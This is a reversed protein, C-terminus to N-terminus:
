VGRGSLIRGQLWGGIVIQERVLFCFQALLVSGAVSRSPFTGWPSLLLCEPQALLGGVGDAVALLSSISCWWQLVLTLLRPSLFLSM